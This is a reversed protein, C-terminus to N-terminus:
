AHSQLTLCSTTSHLLICRPTILILHLRFTSVKVIFIAPFKSPFELRSSPDWNKEVWRQRRTQLNSGTQRPRYFLSIFVIQSPIVGPLSSEDEHLFKALLQSGCALDITLFKVLIDWLGVSRSARASLWKALRGDQKCTGERGRGREKKKVLTEPLSIHFKSLPPALRLYNLM